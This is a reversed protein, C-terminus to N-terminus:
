NREGGAAAGRKRRPEVRSDPRRELGLQDKLVKSPVEEVGGRSLSGLQFPGYAVRILRSVPHGLHEMVQRVERNRGEKLAITLWANDGKQVDLRAEIPGYDVGGVTIGKALAPLRAEEVPGRVRVRYRRTWGRAPLELSRALAGDNTLLLLGETNFDLRGVTVVRPMEPPLREFVTPRGQPDRTTTMLGRPKHYRWLRTHQPEPIPRGDVTVLAEPGVVIAPTTLVRGDVAVRRAEILREAERRSCVGARALRRAIREGDKRATDTM